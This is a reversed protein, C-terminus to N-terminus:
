ALQVRTMIKKPIIKRTMFSIEEKMAREEISRMDAKIKDLPNISIADFPSEFGKNSVVYKAKEDSCVKPKANFTDDCFLKEFKQSKEEETLGQISTYSIKNEFSKNTISGSLNRANDNPNFENGNADINRLTTRCTRVPKGYDESLIFIYIIIFRNWNTIM